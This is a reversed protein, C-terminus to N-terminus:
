ITSWARDIPILAGSITSSADSALFLLLQAIDNPKSIDSRDSRQHADLVPKMKAAADMDFKSMDVSAMINTM